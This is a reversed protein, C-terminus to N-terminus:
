KNLLWFEIEKGVRFWLCTLALRILHMKNWSLLSIWENYNFSTHVILEEKTSRMNHLLLFIFLHSLIEVCRPKYGANPRTLENLYALFVNGALIFIRLIILEAEVTPCESLRVIHIKSLSGRQTWFTATRCLFTVM